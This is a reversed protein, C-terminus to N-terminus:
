PTLVKDAAFLYESIAFMNTIQEKPVVEKLGYYEVCLGCALVECGRSKFDNLVKLAQSGAAMLKVGSNAMLIAKPEQGSDLVTQLFMNLLKQSFEKDGEGFTDKSIFLVTMSTASSTSSSTRSSTGTSANAATVTPAICADGVLGVGRCLSVKYHGEEKEEQFSARLSKALRKLNNVCVDDDVVAEVSDVEQNDFLKKTRIVPEPCTLGRLDIKEQM